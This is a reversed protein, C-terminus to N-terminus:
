FGLLEDYKDLIVQLNQDKLETLDRKICFGDCDYFFNRVDEILDSVQKNRNLSKQERKHSQEIEESMSQCLSKVLNDYEDKTLNININPSLDLSITKDILNNNRVIM